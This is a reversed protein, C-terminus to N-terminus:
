NFPFLYAAKRKKMGRDPKQAFFLASGHHRSSGPRQALRIGAKGFAAAFGDKGRNRTAAYPKRRSILQLVTTDLAEPSSQAGVESWKQVVKFDSFHHFHNCFTRISIRFHRKRVGSWTQRSSISSKQRWVPNRLEFIVNELEREIFFSRNPVRPRGDRHFDFIQPGSSVFNILIPPGIHPISLTFQVCRAPRGALRGVLWTM